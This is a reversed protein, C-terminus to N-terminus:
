QGEHPGRPLRVTFTAGEAVVSAVDITGGHMEVISRAIALGLGSGSARADGVNTGRFFRDFVLPLEASPIGPGSDRVELVAGEPEDRLAVVVEDGRQTFKLANGVLNTLLQLMREQDFRLMVPSTPVASTLAVGRQEALEAHAEVVARVPERLDGWRMDLPFIGADIRSLDLLNTSMWEMRNIQETSRDLFERRTSPDVQGDRQLETFARLAAIPTRLEHSVDAVFERLQDRDAQLMRVSESLRDAMVNFQQGLEDVEVIGFVPAREELAGHAFSSSTRRLRALPGTLRRAALVGVFLSVALAAVGAAVLTGNVRQLTSVRNTYVDRVWYTLSIRQGAITINPDTFQQAEVGVDPQLGESRLQADTAADPVAKAALSGDPYTIEVTGQALEKAAVQAIPQLLQTNRLEPVLLWSIDEGGMSELRFRVLTATARAATEARRAAEDAFYGPLIQSLAVGSVVLAVLAVSALILVLRVNLRKLTGVLQRLRGAAADTRPSRM